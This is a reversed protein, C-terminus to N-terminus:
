DELDSSSQERMSRSFKKKFCLNFNLKVQVVKVVFFLSLPLMLIIILISFMIMLVAVVGPVEEECELTCPESRRSSESQM